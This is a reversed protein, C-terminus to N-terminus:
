SLFMCMDNVSFENFTPWHKCYGEKNNYTVHLKKFESFRCMMGKSIKKSAL